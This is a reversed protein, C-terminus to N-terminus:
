VASDSGLIYWDSMRYIDQLTGDSASYTFSDVKVEEPYPISVLESTGDGNATAHQETLPVPDIGLHDAGKYFLSAM